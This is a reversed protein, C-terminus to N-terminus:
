CLYAKENKQEQPQCLVGKLFGPLQSVHFNQGGHPVPLKNGM